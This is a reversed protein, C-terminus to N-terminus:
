FLRMLHLEYHESDSHYLNTNYANAIKTLAEDPAYIPEPAPLGNHKVYDALADVSTGHGLTVCATFSIRQGKHIEFPAAFPKNEENETKVDPIMIGLLSNNQREIFNPAAFVPQCYYENYNFWRTVPVDLSYQVSIYDNNHSLAM